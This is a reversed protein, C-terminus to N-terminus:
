ALVEVEDHVRVTGTARPILHMGFAVGGGPHRRYTSLTRLPEQRAHALRTRPDITAFM